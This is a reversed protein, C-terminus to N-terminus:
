YSKEEILASGLLLSLERKIASRQDNQHYIARALAIFPGDFKATHEHERIQSEIEWLMVNIAKLRATLNAVEARALAPEAVQILLKLENAAHARAAETPLRAVKIELITVKDIVDGWSTPVCPTDMM